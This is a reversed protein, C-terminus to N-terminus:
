TNKIEEWLQKIRIIEEEELDLTIGREMFPKLMKKLIQIDRSINKQSINDSDTDVNTNVNRLIPDLLLESISKNSKKAFEKIYDKIHRNVRIHIQSEKKETNVNKTNHTSEKNSHTSM